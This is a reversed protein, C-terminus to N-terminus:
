KLEQLFQSKEANKLVEEDHDNINLPKKYRGDDTAFSTKPKYKNDYNTILSPNM